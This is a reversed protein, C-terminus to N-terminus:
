SNLHFAREEAEQRAHLFREQWNPDEDPLRAVVHEDLVDGGPATLSVAVVTAGDHSYHRVKWTAQEHSRRTTGQRLAGTVLYACYIVVGTLLLASLIAIARMM